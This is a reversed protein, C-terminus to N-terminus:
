RLYDPTTSTYRVYIMMQREINDVNALDFSGQSDFEAGCSRSRLTSCLPDLHDVREMYDGLANIAAGVLDQDLDTYVGFLRSDLIKSLLESVDTPVKFSTNFSKGGNFAILAVNADKATKVNSRLNYIISKLTAITSRRNSDITKQLETELILGQNSTSLLEAQRRVESDTELYQRLLKDFFTNQWVVLPQYSAENGSSTFVFRALNSWARLNILCAERHSRDAIVLEQILNLSPRKDPPSTWYLTCLLDHHNRLAALERQHITEEKPYQRDHNPLLRAVLNRISKEDGMRCMHKIALGVMKLFVHFCRDEPEVDLSPQGDLEELFRPSKYVEENRLHSFNQSAFFDFLTGIIASCKWWGWVQMLVHCRSVIARCYDNFSPAQRANSSYLAFVRKLIGQPLLWNDFSARHRLGPIISGLEDFECLPLLSFTSYWMKEMIQADDLVSVDVEVLEMNTIDWFSGKPIRAADLVKIIIVWAHAAYQDNKIGRERFSLYQLDDYLKRVSDLGQQILLKVCRRAVSKLLDELQYAVALQEGRSIKLVQLVLVTCRAMVEIGRQAQRLEVPCGAMDLRSSFEKLIELMRSLFDCRNESCGFSLHHQVYDSIITMLGAPDPDSPNLSPPRQVLQELLCDFVLGIESSADENWPGWRFERNSLRFSNCPRLVGCSIAGPTKIAESLRGSGIFTSEHFFIGSQLPLIDFHTAYRVGFKGLGNLKNEKSTNDPVHGPALFDLLVPESPQRYKAAGADVRQPLRKRQRSREVPKMGLIKSATSSADPDGPTTTEISPRVIDDDVLFRHLQLKLQSASGRKNIRFLADLAKKTTKFAGTPDGLSYNVESSELQAPRAQPADYLPKYRRRQTVHLASKSGLAPVLYGLHPLPRELVFDSTSMQRGKSVVLQRPMGLRGYGVKVDQTRSKARNLPPQLRKQHNDAIQRLAARRAHIPPSGFQHSLSKPKIRGEKWKQLVSQADFTDERNGLRIFKNSPSQRGQGVRSRATRAAVKIFQPLEGNARGFNDTVDLISLRPPIPKQYRGSTDEYSTRSSNRHRTHRNANSKSFTSIDAKVFHQTIQPQTTHAIGGKRSLSTSGVRIKKRPQTNSRRQRKHSPLMADIRDDEEAYGMRHQEFISDLDMDSHDEMILGSEVNEEEEDDEEDSLLLLGNNILDSATGGPVKPLAVGRRIVHNRPSLSLSEPRIRGTVQRKQLQHDLRLHSAPLVGRIKKGVKRIQISEDSSSSSPSDNPESAFPDEELDSELLVASSVPKIASTAPTPLDPAAQFDFQDQDLWIPTPENSFIPIASYIPRQVSRSTTPLPSSTTPPSAPVDFVSAARYTTNTAEPRQTQIRSLPPRKSKSSYVKMRRKPDTSGAASRPGQLLKDIDPFEDDSSQSGKVHTEARQTLSSPEFSGGFEVPQSEDTEQELQQSEFDQSNPNPSSTEQSRQHDEDLSPVLRMPTMGRAKLTRRYKEQEVIYPHLQIPNRRRLARANLTVPVQLIPSTSEETPTHRQSNRLGYSEEGQSANSQTNYTLDQQSAPPSSLSSSTPSTLRVYTKSIEDEEPFIHAPFLNQVNDTTENESDASDNDRDWLDRPVKFVQPLAPSSPPALLRDGTYPKSSGITQLVPNTTSQQYSIDDEVPAEANLNGEEGDLRGRLGQEIGKGFGDDHEDLGGNTAQDAYSAPSFSDLSDEDDSDPVM